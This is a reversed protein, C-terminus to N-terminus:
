ECFEDLTQTLVVVIKKRRRFVSEIVCQTCKMVLFFL